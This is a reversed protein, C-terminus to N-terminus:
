NTQKTQKGMINFEFLKGPNFADSKIGSCISKRDSINRICTIKVM